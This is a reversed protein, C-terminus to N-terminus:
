NPALPRTAQPCYTPKSQCPKTLPLQRDEGQEARLCETAEATDTIEHETIAKTMIDKEVTMETAKVSRSTAQLKDVEAHCTAAAKTMKGYSPM